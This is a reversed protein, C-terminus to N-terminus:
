SDFSQYNNMSSIINKNTLTIQLDNHNAQQYAEEHLPEIERWIVKDGNADGTYYIVDVETSWQISRTKCSVDESHVQITETFPHHFSEEMMVKCMSNINNSLTSKDNHANDPDKEYNTEYVNVPITNNKVQGLNLNAFLDVINYLPLTKEMEIKPFFTTTVTCNQMGNSNWTYNYNSNIKSNIEEKNNQKKNISLYNNRIDHNIYRIKKQNQILRTHKKLSHLKTFLHLSNRQCKDLRYCQKINGSFCKENSYPLLKLSIYNYYKQLRFFIKRSIGYVSIADINDLNCLLSLKVNASKWLKILNKVKSTSKEQFNDYRKDNYPIIPLVSKSM